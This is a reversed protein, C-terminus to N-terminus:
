NTKYINRTKFLTGPPISRGYRLHGGREVYPATRDGRVQEILRDRVPIPRIDTREHSLARIGRTKLTPNVKFFAARRRFV